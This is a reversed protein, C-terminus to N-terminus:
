PSSGETATSTPESGAVAELAHRLLQPLDKGRKVARRLIGRCAIASLYYRQPVDGTALVDSLSCVGDDSLSLGDLGTWESLSLTWCETPSVMGANQWGESSPPSLEGATWRSCVPSTRGYSGSPALAGLLAVFNSRWTAVSMMWDRESVRSRSPNAPPEGSSFMSLQM